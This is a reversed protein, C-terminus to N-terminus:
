KGVRKKKKKKEASTLGLFLLVASTHAARAKIKEREMEEKKWPSRLAVIVVWYAAAVSKFGGVVSGGFLSLLLLSLISCNVIIKSSM